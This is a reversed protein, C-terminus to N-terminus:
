DGTWGPGELKALLRGGLGDPLWSPAYMLSFGLVLACLVIPRGAANVERTVGPWVQPPIM